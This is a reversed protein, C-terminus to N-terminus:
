GSCGSILGQQDIVQGGDEEGEPKFIIFIPIGEVVLHDGESRRKLWPWIRCRPDHPHEVLAVASPHLGEPQLVCERGGYWEGPVHHCGRIDSDCISCKLYDFLTEWSTYLGNGFRHRIASFVPALEELCYALFDSDLGSYGSLRDRVDHALLWVREIARPSDIWRKDGVIIKVNALDRLGNLVVRIGFHFQRVTPPSTQEFRRCHEQIAAIALEAAPVFDEADMLDLWDHVKSNAWDSLSEIAEASDSM